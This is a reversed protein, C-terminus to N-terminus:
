LVAFEDVVVEHPIFADESTVCDCRNDADLGVVLRNLFRWRLWTYLRFCCFGKFQAVLPSVNLYESIFENLCQSVLWGFVFISLLCITQRFCLDRTM